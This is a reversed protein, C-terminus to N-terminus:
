IPVSLSGSVGLFTTTDDPMRLIRVSAYDVTATDADRAPRRGPFGEGFSVFVGFVRLSGCTLFLTSLRQESGVLLHATCHSTSEGSDLQAVVKQSLTEGGTCPKPRTYRVSCGPAPTHYSV